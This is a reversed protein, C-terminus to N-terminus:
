ARAGTFLEDSDLLPRVSRQREDVSRANKPPFFGQWSNAVSEEIVARPDHGQSRFGDLRKVLIRVAADTLPKRITRRMAVFDAWADTPVWDPM